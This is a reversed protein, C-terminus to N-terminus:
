SKDASLGGLFGGRAHDERARRLVAEAGGMYEVTKRAAPVPPLAELNMPNGDYHGLYRQYIARVNHKLHGYFAHTAWDQALAPPLTIAEAIESASYGHNMLRVTQDHLFKYADRQKRLMERLREGGWVPWHHQAIMVEAQGGYRQLAGAIHRSWALADRVQAGRMPLLNHLGHTVIEAMNLVRQQPLYTIM